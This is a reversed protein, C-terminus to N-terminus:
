SKLKNALEFLTKALKYRKGELLRLFILKKRGLRPLLANSRYDPFKEYVYGLFEPRFEARPGSMLVRRAGALVSDVALYSLWPRFRELANEREFWARVTEVANLIELNRRLDPNRM